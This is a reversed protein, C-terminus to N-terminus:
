DSKNSVSKKEPRLVYELTFFVVALNDIFQTVILIKDADEKQFNTTNLFQINETLSDFDHELNSEVLFTIISLFVFMMSTFAIAQAAKSTEPYEFM